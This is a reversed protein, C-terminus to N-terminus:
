DDDISANYNVLLFFNHKDNNFLRFFRGEKKLFSLKIFLYIIIAISLYQLKFRWFIRQFEFPLLWEFRSGGLSKPYAFYQIIFDNFDIGGLYILIFFFILCTMTGTLAAILNSINKTKIFFAFSLVTIVFIVYVTPAQKSLFSFGLLVPITFWFINKNQTVAM